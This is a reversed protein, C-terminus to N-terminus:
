AALRDFPLFSRRRASPLAHLIRLGPAVETAWSAADVTADFPHVSGELM